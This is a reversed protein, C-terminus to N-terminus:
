RSRDSAMVGPGPSGAPVVTTLPRSWAVEAPQSGPVDRSATVASVTRPAGGAASAPLTMAIAVSGLASAVGIGVTIASLRALGQARALQRASGSPPPSTM